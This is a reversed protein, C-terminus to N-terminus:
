DTQITEGPKKEAGDKGAPDDEPGRLAAALATMAVPISESLPRKEVYRVVLVHADAPKMGAGELGLKITERIDDVFWDGTALRTFLREPGYGTKAQLLRLEDIGLRFVRTEGGFATEVRASGDASV